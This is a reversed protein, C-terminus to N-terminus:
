GHKRRTQLPLTDHADAQDDAKYLVDSTPTFLFMPLFRTTVELGVLSPHLVQRYTQPM